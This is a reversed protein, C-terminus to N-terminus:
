TCKSFFPCKKCNVNKTKEFERNAIAKIIKSLKSKTEERQKENFVQEVTKGPTVFLLKTNSVNMGSKEAALAYIRLQLEYNEARKSVESARINDTKFDIIQYIQQKDNESSTSQKIAKKSDDRCHCPDLNKIPKHIGAKAPIVNMFSKSREKLEPCLWDITGSITTNEFNWLFPLEHYGSSLDVNHLLKGINHQVSLSDNRMSETVTLGEELCATEISKANSMGQCIKDIYSHIIRGKIHAPIKSSEKKPQDEVGKVYRMLFERPCREFSELQSVTLFSPSFNIQEFKDNPIEINQIIQESNSTEFECSDKIFPNLLKEWVGTQKDKVIQPILVGKKARTLAVYILRKEEAFEGEKEHEVLEDYFENSQRKGDVSPKFAIGKDLVFKWAASKSLSIRALDPLIVVDWELGKSAHVSMLSVSKNSFSTPADGFRINRDKLKDVADLLDKLTPPFPLKRAIEMLHEVNGLRAGSLDTEALIRKYGTIQLLKEILDIPMINKSISKLQKLKLYMKNEFYNRLLLDEDSIGIFSSRLIAIESQEDNYACWKLFSLIDMIEAQELFIKGGTLKSPIGFEKLAKQYIHASSLARFLVAIENPKTGNAIFKSVAKAIQEAEKLRIDDIKKSDVKVPIKKIGIQPQSHCTNAKLPVYNDDIELGSAVTNVFDIVHSTSRFNTSLNINKGGNNKVIDILKLFGNPNSGRFGYIAQKPDGVVFLTNKMPSFLKSIIEIQIDNTDQCEDVLINKFRKHCDDLIDTNKLLNLTDIELQQFDTEGNEKLQKEFEANAREFISATGNTMKLATDPSKDNCFLSPNIVHNAHWRFSLLQEVLQATSYWGLDDLLLFANENGIELESAIANEAIHKTLLANKSESVVRMGGFNYHNLVKAYFSHFTGIWASGINQKINNPLATYLRAKLETAAKETFTIALLSNLNDTSENAINKCREILVRTKGTGAGAIVALSTDINTAAFHQERTLEM